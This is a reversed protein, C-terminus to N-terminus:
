PQYMQLRPHRELTKLEMELGTTCTTITESLPTFSKMSDIQVKISAIRASTGDDEITIPAGPAVIMNQVCWGEYERFSSAQVRTKTVLSAPEINPVAGSSANWPAAQTADNQAGGNNNTKGKGKGRKGQGKGSELENQFTVKKPPTANNGNHARPPRKAGKIPILDGRCEGWRCKDVSMNSHGLDCISCQTCFPKGVWKKQKPAQPPATTKLGQQLQKLVRKAEQVQKRTEKTQWETDGM